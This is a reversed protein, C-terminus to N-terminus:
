PHPRGDSFQAFYKNEDMEFNRLYYVQGDEWCELEFLPVGEFKGVRFVFKNSAEPVTDPSLGPKSEYPNPWYNSLSEKVVVEFKNDTRREAWDFASWFYDLASKKDKMVEEITFYVSSFSVGEIANVVKQSLRVIQFQDTTPVRITVKPDTMEHQDDHGERNFDSFYKLKAVKIRDDQVNSSHYFEAVKKLKLWAMSYEFEVGLEVDEILGENETEPDYPDMTQYEKIRSATKSYNVFPEEELTCFPTQYMRIYEKELDFRGVVWMSVVHYPLDQCDGTELFENIEEPTLLEPIGTNPDTATVPIMFYLQDKILEGEFAMGEVLEALLDQNERLKWRNKEIKDIHEVVEDLRKM